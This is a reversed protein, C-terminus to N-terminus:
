SKLNRSINTVAISFFIYSLVFMQNLYVETNDYM